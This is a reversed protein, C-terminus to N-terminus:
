QADCFHVAAWIGAWPLPSWWLVDLMVFSIMLGFYYRSRSKERTWDPSLWFQGEHQTCHLNLPLWFVKQKPDCFWLVAQTSFSRLSWRTEVGRGRAPDGVVVGPQGSGCGAQFRLILSRLSCHLCEASCSSSPEESLNEAASVTVQWIMPSLLVRPWSLVRRSGQSGM